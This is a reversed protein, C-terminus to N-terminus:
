IMIIILLVITMLYFFRNGILNIQSLISMIAVLEKNSKKTYDHSIFDRMSEIGDMSDIKEVNYLIM